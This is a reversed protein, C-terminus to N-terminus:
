TAVGAMMAAGVAGADRGWSLRVPRDLIDAIIAPWLSNHAPGGVMAVQRVDVGADLLPTLRRRIEFGISEMLARCTHPSKQGNHTRVGTARMAKTNGWLPVIAGDSGLPSRAARETFREFNDPANGGAEDTVTREVLRGVATLAFLPGWPGDPALFTDVLLGLSLAKDRDHMPVFGVWSTGCSLLLSGEDLVGAGRASADHDFCGSVVTCGRPLGTARAADATVPGIATGSDVLRPLQGASIGLASLFPEHWRGHVQDQLYFTTATSRDMWLQGTLRAGIYTSLMVHSVAREYREREHTRLWALHGLPFMGGYPWGVVRHVEDPDIAPLLQRHTEVARTDMWGIVPGIPEASGDLLLTNGGAFAVCLGAIDAPSPCQAVIERILDFFCECAESADLEVRGSQPYRLPTDARARAVASGDTGLLVGKLASTGFDIGILYAM